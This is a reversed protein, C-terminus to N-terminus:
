ARKRQQPPAAPESDNVTKRLSALAELSPWIVEKMEELEYVGIERREYRRCVDEWLEFLKKPCCLERARQQFELLDFGDIIQE